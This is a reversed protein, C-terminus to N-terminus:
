PIITSDFISKWRNMNWRFAIMQPVNESVLIKIQSVESITLKLVSLTMKVIKLSCIEALFYKMFIENGFGETTRVSHIFGIEITIICTLLALASIAITQIAM